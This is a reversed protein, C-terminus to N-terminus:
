SVLPRQASLDNRSSLSPDASPPMTQAPRDEFPNTIREPTSALAVHSQSASNQPTRYSAVSAGGPSQPVNNNYTHPTSSMVPLQISSPAPSYSANYCPPTPDAQPYQM